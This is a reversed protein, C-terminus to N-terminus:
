GHEGEPAQDDFPRAALLVAAHGPLTWSGAGEAVPPIGDGGYAVDESTWLDAWRHGAPPALLPEPMPVLPLDHGMNVLLLRDDGDGGFWRLVFAEDGLVAGDLGGARPNRLVPDERRLRLLERHMEWVPRNREREGHDLKCRTFTEEEHPPALHRQMAPTNLSPFQRLFAARGEAVRAALEPTHDAVYLFPASAAFEQGQFLMPTGPGLLLVATMARWCGPAALTHGRRGNGSNAVQDHNQLFTVFASPPVGFAPTGRPQKQWQYWQGQYLFGHKMASVFEQPTGRHDCYYAENRGTLAVMASHHFDDNWLADLGCGGADLPRVLGTDQPENEGIVITVRGRAARAVARRLEALIHPTSADFMQQTADLRLGDLHFEDIWYAANALFFARVPGSGPGDLNIADGWENDYRDTTYTDSFQGLYNGDPGFHNYVVDLIVAIGLAHARDVFRRMADPPGYLRTPAFLNVGDYGWGFRGPFDAVPMLEVVTIGLEALHPLEREAAEWTGEPTFTGVHLEYIVAEDISRGLWTDDTWAFRRPDVVQSPGHPGEPQFRSAPDPLLTDGGDLRFRYLSGVPFGDLLGTFYGDTEADLPLARGEPEAVVAVRQAAPAWVRVSLRDGPLAEAGVPYLRTVAGAQPHEEIGAARLAASEEGPSTM